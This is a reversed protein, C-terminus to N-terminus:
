LDLSIIYLMIQLFLFLCFFTAEPAARPCRVQAESIRSCPCLWQSPSSKTNPDPKSSFLPLLEPTLQLKPCYSESKRVPRRRRVFQLPRRAKGQAILLGFITRHLYPTRRPTARAHLLSHAHHTRAPSLCSWSFLSSSTWPPCLEAVLLDTLVHHFRPRPPFPYTHISM